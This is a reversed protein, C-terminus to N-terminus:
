CCYNINISYQGSDNSRTTRRPGYPCGVEVSTMEDITTDVVNKYECVIRKSKQHGDVIICKSCQTSDCNINPLTKHRSWFTCFLHYWWGSSYEFHHELESRHLSYPLTVTEGKGLMFEFLIINYIIWYSQFVKTLHIPELCENVIHIGKTNYFSLVRKCYICTTTFPLLILDHLVDFVIQKINMLVNNHTLDEMLFVYRVFSLNMAILNTLTRIQDISFHSKFRDNVATQIIRTRPDSPLVSLPLISLAM